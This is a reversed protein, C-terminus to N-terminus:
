HLMSHVTLFGVEREFSHGYEEAQEEARELSIVIDGLCIEGMENLEAYDENIEGAENYEFMPFSLVDTTRDINRHLKNLDRIGDNDTLMVSIEVDTRLDFFKLAAEASRKILDKLPKGVKIKDQQNLIAVKM